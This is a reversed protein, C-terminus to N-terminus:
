ENVKITESELPGGAVALLFKEIRTLAAGRMPAGVTFVVGTGGAPVTPTAYECVNVAM